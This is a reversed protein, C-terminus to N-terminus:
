GVINREQISSVALSSCVNIRSDESFLAIKINRLLAATIIANANLICVKLLLM